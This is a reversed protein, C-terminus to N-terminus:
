LNAITNLAANSSQSENYDPCLAGGSLSVSLGTSITARHTITVMHWKSLEQVQLTYDGEVEDFPRKYNSALTWVVDHYM